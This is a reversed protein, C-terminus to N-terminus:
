QIKTKIHSLIRGAFEATDFPKTIYDAAGADLGHQQDELSARGSIFIIPTEKLRPEQKLQRCLRLGDGGPMGVDMTVLDFDNHRALQLAKPISTAIQTECGSQELLFRIIIAVPAEDEVILVKARRTAQEGGKTRTGNVNAMDKLM